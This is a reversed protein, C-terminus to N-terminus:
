RRCAAETGRKGLVSWGMVATLELVKEGVKGEGGILGRV